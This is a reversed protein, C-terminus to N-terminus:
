VVGIAIFGLRLASSSMANSAANNPLASRGDAVDSVLMICCLVKSGESVAEVGCVPLCAGAATMDSGVATLCKAAVGDGRTYLM